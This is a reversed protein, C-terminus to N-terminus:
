LFFFMKPLQHIEFSLRDNQRCGTCDDLNPSQTETISNVERKSCHCELVCVTTYVICASLILRISVALYPNPFLKTTVSRVMNLIWDTEKAVKKVEITLKIVPKEYQGKYSLSDSNTVAFNM